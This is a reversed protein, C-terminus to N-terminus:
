MLGLAVKLSQDLWPSIITGLLIIGIVCLGLAIGWPITVPVKQDEDESRNLYIVKLVTLYYYLAIISNLIGLFALWYLNSQVAAAFVLLKGVFGGFPPIGALSLLAVLLVLALGPSRRSLGNYASLDDSGTSRSVVVVVGFAAVNTVLYAILYYLTGSFGLPAASAVGILMTGAQAISSYALLRKINKQTLALANGAVMTLVALVALVYSWDPLALNFVNVFIRMLVAFGAAKSATSLFATVPTPAGEYV